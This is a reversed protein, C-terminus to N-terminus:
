ALVGGRRNRGMGSMGVALVGWDPAWEYPISNIGIVSLSIGRGTSYGAILTTLPGADVGFFDIGATSLAGWLAISVQRSSSSSALCLRLGRSGSDKLRGELGALAVASGLPLTVMSTRPLVLSWLLSSLVLWQSSEDSESVNLSFPASESKSNADPSQRVQESVLSTIMLVAWLLNQFFTHVEQLM